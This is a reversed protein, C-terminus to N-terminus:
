SKSTPELKLAKVAIRLAILFILVFVTIPTVLEAGWKLGTENSTLLGTVILGIAIFFFAINGTQSYYIGTIVGILILSLPILLGLDLDIIKSTQMLELAFLTGGIVLTIIILNKQMGELM